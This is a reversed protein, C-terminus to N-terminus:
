KAPPQYRRISLIVIPEAPKDSADKKVKSIADVIDMGKLVKGFVTHWGSLADNDKTSIFFQSGNTNPGSNAMALTGRAPKHSSRTDDYKYGKLTIVDAVTLKKIKALIEDKKAEFDEQSQVGLEDTIPKVIWRRFDDGSRIRTSPNPTPRNPDSMDVALMKDLGLAKASIEDEFKYGPDGTGTGLPCGGQIMFNEIVRHFNLGDYFPRKVMEGTKTDKFAKTGEALSLFNQVTKPAEEVFLEIVIDGRSTKMVVVPDTTKEVPLAGDKALAGDETLAFPALLTALVTRSM